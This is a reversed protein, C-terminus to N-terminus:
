PMMILQLSCEAGRIFTYDLFGSDIYPKITAYTDDSSENDYLYIKTIGVLKHYEIWEKIYLGENKAIAVIAVEHDFSATREKKLKRTVNLFGYTSAYVKCLLWNILLYPASLLLIPKSLKRHNRRLNLIYKNNYIFCDLWTEFRIHYIRQKISM